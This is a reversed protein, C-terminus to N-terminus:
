SMLRLPDAPRHQEAADDPCTVRRGVFGMGCGDRKRERRTADRGTFCGPKDAIRRDIHFTGLVATTNWNQETVAGRLLFKAM